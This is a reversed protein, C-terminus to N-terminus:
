FGSKDQSIDMFIVPKLIGSEGGGLSENLIYIDVNRQLFTNMYWRADDWFGGTTCQSGLVYSYM